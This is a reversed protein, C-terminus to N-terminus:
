HWLIMLDHRELCIQISKAKFRIRFFGESLHSVSKLSVLFCLRSFSPVLGSFLKNKSINCLWFIKFEEGCIRGGVGDGFM